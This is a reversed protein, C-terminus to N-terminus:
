KFWYDLTGDSRKGYSGEFGGRAARVTWWNRVGSRRVLDGQDGERRALKGRFRQMSIMHDSKDPNKSKYPVSRRNATLTELSHPSLHIAGEIKSSQLCLTLTLRM